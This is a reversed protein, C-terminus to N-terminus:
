DVEIGEEPGPTYDPPATGVVTFNGATGQNEEFFVGSVNDRELWIDPTGFAKAAVVGGVPYIKPPSVTSDIRWFNTLNGVTPDIAQGFWVQVLALEIEPQPVGSININPASQGDSLGLQSSAQPVYNGDVSTVTDPVGIVGGVVNGNHNCLPNGFGGGTFPLYCQGAYGLPGHNVGNFVFKIVKNGTYQNNIPNPDADAASLDASIFLVNWEGLTIAPAISAGIGGNACDKNGGFPGPGGIPPASGAVTAPLTEITDTHVNPGMDTTVFWVGLNNLASTFAICSRITDSAFVENDGADNGIFHLASQEGWSLLCPYVFPPDYFTAPNQPPAVYSTPIRFWCVYTMKNFNGVSFESPLYTM